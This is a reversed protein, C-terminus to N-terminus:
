EINTIEFSLSDSINGATDKAFAYYIGNQTATYEVVPEKATKITNWKCTSFTNKTTVCWKQILSMEDKFAIQVTDTKTPSNSIGAVTTVRPKTIDLRSNYTVADSCVSPKSSCKNTCKKANSGDDKKIVRGKKDKKDTCVEMCSRLCAKIYYTKDEDKNITFESETANMNDESEGHYFVIGSESSTFGLVYPKTHWANSTIGDSTNIKPVELKSVTVKVTKSLDNKTSASIEATGADKAYVVGNKDVTAVDENSSKWTITKNSVSEPTVIATIKESRGQKLSLETKDLNIETPYSDDNSKGKVVVKVEAQFRTSNTSVKISTTGESIGEIVGGESVKAVDEDYSSFKPTFSTANTPTYDLKLRYREGKSLQITMPKVTFSEMDVYKQTVYVNFSASRDKKRMTIIAQGVEVGFIKGEEDVTAINENSSEYTIDYGCEPEGFDINLSHGLGKVVSIHNTLLVDANFTPCVVIEKEESAIVKNGLKSTVVVNTRGEQIPIVNNDSESGITEKDIVSLISNDQIEYTTVLQNIDKKAKKSGTYKADVTISSAEGIYVIDPIIIDSKYSSNEKLVSVVIIIVIIIIALIIGGFLLAVTTNINDTFNKIREKFSLNTKEEYVVNEDSIINSDLAPFDNSKEASITESVSYFNGKDESALPTQISSPDESDDKKQSKFFWNNHKKKKGEEYEVDYEEEVNFDSKAM